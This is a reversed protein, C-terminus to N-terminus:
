VQYGLGQLYAEVYHTYTFGLAVAIAWLIWGGISPKTTPGLLKSTNTGYIAYAIGFLFLLPQIFVWKGKYTISAAQAQAESIPIYTNLWLLLLGMLVFFIGLPRSAFDDPASRGKKTPNLRREEMARTFAESSNEQDAM